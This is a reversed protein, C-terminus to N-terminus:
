IPKYGPKRVSFLSPLPILRRPDLRDATWRRLSFGHVFEWGCEAGDASVAAQPRKLKGLGDVIACDREAIQEEVTLPQSGM